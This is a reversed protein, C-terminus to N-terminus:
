PSQTMNQTQAVVTPPSLLFSLFVPSSHPDLKVNRSQPTEKLDMDSSMIVTVIGRRFEIREEVKKKRMGLPCNTSIQM